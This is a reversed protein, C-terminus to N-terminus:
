ENNTQMLVNLLNESPNELISNVFPLIEHDEPFDNSGNFSKWRKLLEKQWLLHNNTDDKINKSAEILAIQAFQSNLINKVLPNHKNRLLWEFKDRPIKIGISNDSYSYEITNADDNSLFSILGQSNTELDIKFSGLHAIPMGKRVYQSNWDTNNKFLIIVDISISHYIDKKDIDINIERIIDSKFCKRFMTASCTAEAILEANEWDITKNDIILDPVTLKYSYKNIDVNTTSELQITNITIVGYPFKSTQKM